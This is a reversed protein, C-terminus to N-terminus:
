DIIVGDDGLEGSLKDLERALGKKGLEKYVKYLRKYEKKYEEKYEESPRMKAQRHLEKGVKRIASIAIKIFSAAETENIDKKLAEFMQVNENNFRKTIRTFFEEDGDWLIGSEKLRVLTDYLAKEANLFLTKLKVTDVIGSELVERVEIYTSARKAITEVIKYIQSCIEFAEDSMRDHEHIVLFDYLKTLYTSLIGKKRKKEELKKREEEKEADSKKKEEELKKKKLNDALLRDIQYIIDDTIDEMEEATIDKKTNITTVGDSLKDMCEVADKRLDRPNCHFMESIEEACAVLEDKLRKVDTTFKGLDEATMNRPSVELDDIVDKLYPGIEGIEKIDTAQLKQLRRRITMRTKKTDGFLKMMIDRLRAAAIDKDRETATKDKLVKLAELIAKVAEFYEEPLKEGHNKLHKKLLAEGDKKYIDEWMKGFYKEDFYGFDEEWFDAPVVGDAVMNCNVELDQCINQKLDEMELLKPNMKYLSMRDEPPLIKQSREIHNLFNHMLEHFLIGFIREKDCNLDNYIYHVNMWLNGREDVAMTKHRCEKLSPNALVYMPRSRKIYDYMFSYESALRGLAGNVANVIVKLDVDIVKDLARVYMTLKGLKLISQTNGASPDTIKEFVRMGYGYMNRYMDNYLRNM